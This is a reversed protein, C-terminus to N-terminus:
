SFYLSISWFYTHNSLPYALFAIEICFLSKLNFNRSTCCFKNTKKMSYSTFSGQMPMSGEILYKPSWSSSWHSKLYWKRPTPYSDPSSVNLVRGIRGPVAFEPAPFRDRNEVIALELTGSLAM